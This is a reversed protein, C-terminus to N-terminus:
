DKICRVSFGNQENYDSRYVNSKDYGLKRNWANSSDYKTSSWWFGHAGIVYYTGNNIRYGGPFATFGSSNTTGKKSFNWDTSSKM